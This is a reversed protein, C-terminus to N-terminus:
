KKTNSKTAEALEKERDPNMPDAQYKTNIENNKKFFESSLDVQNNALKSENASLTINQADNFSNALSQGVQKIGESIENGSLQNSFYERNNGREIHAM